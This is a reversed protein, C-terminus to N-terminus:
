RRWAEQNRRERLLLSDVVGYVNCNGYGNGALAHNLSLAALVLHIACIFSIEFLSVTLLSATSCVRVLFL